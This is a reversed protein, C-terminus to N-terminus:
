HKFLYTSIYESTMKASLKQGKDSWHNDDKRYLHQSETKVFEDILHVCHLELSSCISKIPSTLNKYNYEEYKMLDKRALITNEVLVDSVSPQIVIVLQVKKEAAAIKVKELVKRMLLVKTKAAEGNPNTAIDIDYHDAFHSTAMQSGNKYNLFERGSEKELDKMSAAVKVDRDLESDDKSLLLLMGRTILLSNLFNKVGPEKQSIQQDRSAKFSTRVLRSEKDLEFLRNRIIDGYDNDAFIHLIMLDPKLVDADDIFRLMSQDPGAGVLGGNIVEVSEVESTLSRELQETYTNDLESFRARVNSDGYVVVRYVKKEGIEKGRYGLSNTRWSIVRGGNADSNEFEKTINPKLSIIANADYDYALLSLDVEKEIKEPFILRLSFEAVTLAVFTIVIIIISDRM